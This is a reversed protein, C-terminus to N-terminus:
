TGHEETYAIEEATPKNWGGEEAASELLSRVHERVTAVEQHFLEISAHNPDPCKLVCVGSFDLEESFPYGRYRDDEVIMRKGHEACYPQFRLHARTTASIMWGTLRWRVSSPHDIFRNTDRNEILRPGPNRSTQAASRPSALQDLVQRGFDTLYYTSTQPSVEVVELFHWHDLCVPFDDPLVDYRFPGGLTYNEMRTVGGLALDGACRQLVTATDVDRLQDNPYERVSKGKLQRIVQDVSRRPTATPAANLTGIHVNGGVIGGSRAAIDGGAAISQRDARVNPEIALKKPGMMVLIFGFLTIPVGVIMMVAAWRHDVGIQIAWLGAGALFTTVGVALFGVSVQPDRLRDLM